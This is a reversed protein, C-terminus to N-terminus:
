NRNTNEDKNDGEKTSGLFDLLRLILNLSEFIIVLCIIRPIACIVVITRVVKGFLNTGDYWALILLITEYTVSRKDSWAQVSVLIFLLVGSILWMTKLIEMLDFM